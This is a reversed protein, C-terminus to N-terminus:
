KSGHFVTTPRIMPNTAVKTTDRNAMLMGWNILIKELVTILEPNKESMKLMMEIISEEYYGKNLNFLLRAFNHCSKEDTDTLYVSITPSGSSDISILLSNKTVGSIGSETQKTFLSKIKNWLIM